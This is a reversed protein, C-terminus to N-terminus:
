YLLIWGNTGSESADADVVASDSVPGFKNYQWVREIQFYKFAHAQCSFMVLQRNAPGNM